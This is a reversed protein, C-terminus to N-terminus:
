VAIDVAKGCGAGPEAGEGPGSFTGASFNRPTSPIVCAVKMAWLCSSATTSADSDPAVASACPLAISHIECLNLENQPACERSADHNGRNMRPSGSSNSGTGAIHAVRRAPLLQEFLAASPAVREFTVLFTRPQPINIPAPRAANGCKFIGIRHLRRTERPIRGSQISPERIGLRDHGIVVHIKMNGFRVLPCIDDLKQTYRRTGSGRNYQLREQEM